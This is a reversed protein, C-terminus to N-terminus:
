WSVHFGGSINPVCNQRKEEIGVTNKTEYTVYMLFSCIPVARREYRCCESIHLLNYCSLIDIKVEKKRSGEFSSSDDNLESTTRQCHKRHNERSRYESRIASPFHHLIVQQLASALADWINWRAGFRQSAKAPSTKRPWTELSNPIEKFPFITTKPWHFKMRLSYLPNFSQNKFFKEVWM